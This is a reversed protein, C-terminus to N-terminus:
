GPIQSRDETGQPQLGPFPPISVAGAGVNAAASGNPTSGSGSPTNSTVVQPRQSGQVAGRDENLLRHLNIPHGCTCDM